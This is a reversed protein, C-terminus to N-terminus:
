TGILVRAEPNSRDCTAPNWDPEGTAPDTRGRVCRGVEYLDILYFTLADALELRKSSHQVRILLLNPYYLPDPSGIPGGVCFGPAMNYKPDDFDRIVGNDDRDCQDVHLSGTVVGSGEGISCSAAVAAVVLLSAAARGAGARGRRRTMEGSRGRRQRRFA